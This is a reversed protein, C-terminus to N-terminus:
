WFFYFTRVQPNCWGACSSSSNNSVPIGSTKPIAAIVKNKPITYAERLANCASSLFSKGNYLVSWNFILCTGSYQPYVPNINWVANSVNPSCGIAPASILAFPM